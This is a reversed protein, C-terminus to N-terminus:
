TPGPWFPRYEGDIFVFDFNLKGWIDIVWPSPFSINYGYAKRGAHMAAKVHNLQKM